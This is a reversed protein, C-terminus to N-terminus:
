IGQILSSHDFLLFLAPILSYLKLAARSLVDGLALPGGLGPAAPSRKGSHPANKSLGLFSIIFLFVTKTDLSPNKYVVGRASPNMDRPKFFNSVVFHDFAVKRGEKNVRM